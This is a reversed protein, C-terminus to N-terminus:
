ALLAETQKEVELGSGVIVTPSGKLTASCRFVSPTGAFRSPSSQRLETRARLALFPRTGCGLRGASYRLPARWLRPPSAPRNEKTVKKARVFFTVRGGPRFGASGRERFVCRLVRLPSWAFLAGVQESAIGRGEFPRVLLIAIEM